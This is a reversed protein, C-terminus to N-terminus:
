DIGLAITFAAAAAVAAVTRVTNWATWERVYTKWVEASAPYDPNLEELANNRPVNFAGTVLLTGILYLAAGVIQLISATEGLDTIAIAASIAGVLGTGTFLSLFVPNLVTVNISQMAAIGQGAPLRALAAMVFSTFAFFVGGIVGSGLAAALTLAFELEDL